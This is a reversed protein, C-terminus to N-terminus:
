ANKWYEVKKFEDTGEITYISQKGEDRIKVGAEDKDFIYYHDGESATEYVFAAGKKTRTDYIVFGTEMVRANQREGNEYLEINIAVPTPRDLISSEGESNLPFTHIVSGDERELTASQGGYIYVESYEDDNVISKESSSIENISDLIERDVLEDIKTLNADIQEGHAKTVAKVSLPEYNMWDGGYFNFVFHDGDKETLIQNMYDIKEIEKVISFGPLKEKFFQEPNSYTADNNFSVVDQAQLLNENKAKSSSPLESYSDALKKEVYARAVEKDEFHPPTKESFAPEARCSEPTKANCINPRGTDKSIHYRQAM